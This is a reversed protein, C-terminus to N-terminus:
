GVILIEGRGDVALDGTLRARPPTRWQSFPTMERALSRALLAWFVEFGRGGASFTPPLSAPEHALLLTGRRMGYACHMGTEGAVGVTGAVLRSAAYAGADGGVLVLGRRMRDALRAGANGRITLTGGTMGEMDGPLAGAAFDGCSGTVDLRGGRMECGAFGGADGEIALTGGSMRLGVYDGAAGRVVLRGADMRAGVRDLWAGAGEIVLTPTGNNDGGDTRSVDFLDGVAVADNGAPLMLWQVDAAPLGAIAAPLLSSADVRFAPATKLRLTTTTSM